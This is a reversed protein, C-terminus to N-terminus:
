NVIIKFYYMIKSEITIIIQDYFKLCRGCQEENIFTKLLSM